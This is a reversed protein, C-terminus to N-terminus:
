CNTEFRGGAIDLREAVMGRVPPSHHHRFPFAKFLGAGQAWVAVDTGGEREHCFYQKCRIQRVMLYDSYNLFACWHAAVEQPLIDMAMVGRPSQEADM